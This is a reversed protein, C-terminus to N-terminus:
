TLRVTDLLAVPDLIFRRRYGRFGTRFVVPFIITSFTPLPSAYADCAYCTTLTTSSAIESSMDSIALNYLSFSIWPKNVWRPWGQGIEAICPSEVRSIFPETCHPLFVGAHAAHEETCLVPHTYSGPESWRRLPTYLRSMSLRFVRFEVRCVSM